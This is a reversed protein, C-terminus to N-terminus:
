GLPDLYTPNANGTGATAAVKPALDKTATANQDSGTILQAARRQSFFTWLWSLFVFLRNRLGILFFIHIFLWALWAWYGSLQFKGFQAVGAARGITALSGRDRYRFDRRPQHELDRALTQAVHDGQQIAVPAVGPLM